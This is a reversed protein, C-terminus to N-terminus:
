AQARPASYQDVSQAAVGAQPFHVQTSVIHVVDSGLHEAFGQLDVCREPSLLFVSYSVLFDNGTFIMTFATHQIM